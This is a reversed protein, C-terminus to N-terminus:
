MHSARLRPTSNSTPCPLPLKMKGTAESAMFVRLENVGGLHENIAEFDRRVPNDEALNGPYQMNVRIQTMGVLSIALIVVAGVIVAQRHEIAFGSLADAVRDLGGGGANPDHRPRRFPLLALTSPTFTLSALVTYGVGLLSLLGFEAIAPIPNLALSLFGAATTVGTILIPLGVDELTRRVADRSPREEDEAVANAVAQYETLVHLAYTFGITLILVPIITTVLNLEIGLWGLTGLTWVLAVVITLLPLVIGRLSRLAFALILALLGFIIPLQFVLEELLLKSMFYKQHPTGSVWIEASGAERRAVEAVEDVVGSEVLERDDIRDLSVILLTASGDESVLTGSFLSTAMVQERVDQAGRMDTPLDRLIPAILLDGDVSRITPATALSLVRNVRPVGEIAETMRVVTRLMEPTFINEAGIGIVLPEDSGFLRRAREYLERQQGGVPMLREVSPDIRLRPEGTALDVIGHAGLLTFLAVAALVWVPREYLTRTWRNM